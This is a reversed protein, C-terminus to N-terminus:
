DVLEVSMSGIRYHLTHDVTNGADAGQKWRWAYVGQKWWPGQPHTRETQVNVQQGVEVGDITFRWHGTADDAWRIRLELSHWKDLLDPMYALRRLGNTLDDGVKLHLWPSPQKSWDAAVLSTFPSPYDSGTHNHWQSVIHPRDPIQWAPAIWWTWRYVYERGMIAYRTGSEPMDGSIQTEARYGLSRTLRYDIAGGISTIASNVNNDASFSLPTPLWTSFDVTLTEGPSPEPEPPPPEPVPDPAPAAELAAVRAALAQLDVEMAYEPHEHEGSAM